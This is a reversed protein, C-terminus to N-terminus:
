RSKTGTASRKDAAICRPSSRDIDAYLALGDRAGAGL